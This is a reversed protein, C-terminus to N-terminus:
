DDLEGDESLSANSSTKLKKIFNDSESDAALRKSCNTDQEIKDLIDDDEQCQDSETDCEGEELNGNHSRFEVKKKLNEHSDNETTITEILIDSEISYDGLDATKVIYFTPYELITKNRLVDELKQNLDFRVFYKRKSNYDIVQFLLNLDSFDESQFITNFETYLAVMSAQSSDMSTDFKKKQTPIEFLESNYKEYFKTLINRLTEKSSFLNKKTHLKILHSNSTTQKNSLHFILEFSWSVIKSARNFRTKNALHRTAHMPM